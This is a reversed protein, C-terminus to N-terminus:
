TEGFRSESPSAGYSTLDGRELGMPISGYSPVKTMPKLCAVVGSSQVISQHGLGRRKGGLRDLTVFAMFRDAIEGGVPHLASRVETLNAPTAGPPDSKGLRRQSRRALESRYKEILSRTTWTTLNRRRRITFLSPLRTPSAGFSPPGLKEFFLIRRECKNQAGNHAFCDAICYTGRRLQPAVPRM